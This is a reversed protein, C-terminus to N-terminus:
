SIGTDPHVQKLVKYIYSSYTEVRKKSRKKGGDAKAASTKAAQINTSNIYPSSSLVYRPPLRPHPPLLRLPRPPLPRPHSLLSPLSFTLRTSTNISPLSPKGNYNLQNTPSPLLTFHPLISSTSSSFPQTPSSHQYIYYHLTYDISAYKTSHLCRTGVVRYL